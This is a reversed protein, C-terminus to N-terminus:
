KELDYLLMIEHKFKTILCLAIDGNLRAILLYYIRISRRHIIQFHIIQELSNNAMIRMKEPTFYISSVLSFITILGM